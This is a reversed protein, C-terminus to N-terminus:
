RLNEFRKSLFSTSSEVGGRSKGKVEWVIGVFIDGSYLRRVELFMVDLGRIKLVVVFLDSKGFM